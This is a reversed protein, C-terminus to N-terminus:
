AALEVLLAKVERLDSDETFRGCISALFDSSKADACNVAGYSPLV